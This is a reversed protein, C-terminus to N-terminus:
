IVQYNHQNHSNEHRTNGNGDGSESIIQGVQNAGHNDNKMGMNIMMGAAIGTNTGSNHQAYAGNHHETNKWTSSSSQSRRNFFGGGFLTGVGGLLSGFISKGDVNASYDTYDTQVVNQDPSYQDYTTQSYDNEDYQNYNLPTANVVAVAILFTYHLHLEKKQVLRKGLSLVLKM